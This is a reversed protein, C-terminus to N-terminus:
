LALCCCTQSSQDELSVKDQPPRQGPQGLFQGHKRQNCFYLIHGKCYELSCQSNLRKISTGQFSLKHSKTALFSPSKGGKFLLMVITKYLESIMPRLSGIRLSVNSNVVAGPLRTSPLWRYSAEKDWLGIYSSQRVVARGWQGIARVLGAQPNLGPGIDSLTM